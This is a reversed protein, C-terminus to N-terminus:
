GNTKTTANAAPNKTRPSAGDEKKSTDVAAPASKEASGGSIVLVMRDAVVVALVSVLAVWISFVGVLKAIMLLTRKFISQENMNSRMSFAKM